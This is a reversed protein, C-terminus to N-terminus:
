KSFPPHTQRCTQLQQHIPSFLRTMMSTSSMTMKLRMQTLIQVCMGSKWSAMSSMNSITMNPGSIQLQMTHSKLTFNITPIKMLYLGIFFMHVMIVQVGTLQHQINIILITRATVLPKKHHGDSMSLQLTLLFTRAWTVGNSNVISCLHQPSGERHWMQLYQHSLFLTSYTLHSPQLLRLHPQITWTMSTHSHSHHHM